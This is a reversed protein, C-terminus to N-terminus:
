ELLTPSGRGGFDWKTTHLGLGKTHFRERPLSWLYIFMLFLTNFKVM